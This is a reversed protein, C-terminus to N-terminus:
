EIYRSGRVYLPRVTNKPMLAGLLVIISTDFKSRVPGSSGSGRGAAGSKLKDKRKTRM